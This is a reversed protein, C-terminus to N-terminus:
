KGKTIRLMGSGNKTESATVGQAALLEIIRAAMEACQSGYAACEIGVMGNFTFVRYGPIIENFSVNGERVRKKSAAKLGGNRLIATIEQHKM